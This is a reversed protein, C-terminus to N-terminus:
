RLRFNYAVLHLIISLRILCAYKFMRIANSVRHTQRILRLVCDNEIRVACHVEKRKYPLMCFSQQKDVNQAAHVRHRNLRSTSTLDQSGMHYSLIWEKQRSLKNILICAKFGYCLFRRCLISERFLSYRRSWNRVDM